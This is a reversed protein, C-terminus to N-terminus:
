LMGFGYDTSRVSAELNEKFAQYTPCKLPLKLTTLCTSAVPLTLDPSVEVYLHQPPISWGTWVKLLKHLEQSSGVFVCDYPQKLFFGFFFGCSNYM